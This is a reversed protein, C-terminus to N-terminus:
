DLDNTLKYMMIAGWLLLLVVKRAQCVSDVDQAEAM